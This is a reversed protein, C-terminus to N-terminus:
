KGVGPKALIEKLKEASVRTHLIGNAEIAPAMSCAGFCNITELTFQNDKTTEGAKIGLAKELLRLNISGGKVGCTTGTCVRLVNKGKPKLNFETYFTATEYIRNLPVGLERSVFVLNEHSLYGERRRIEHLLPILPSRIKKHSAIETKLWEAPM